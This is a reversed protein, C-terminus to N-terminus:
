QQGGGKNRKDSARLTTTYIFASLNQNCLVVNATGLVKRREKRKGLYDEEEEIDRKQEEPNRDRM